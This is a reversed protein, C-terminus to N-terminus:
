SQPEQQSQPEQENRKKPDEDCEKGELDQNKIKMMGGIAILLAGLWRKESLGLLAVGGGLLATGCEQWLDRGHHLKAMKAVKIEKEEVVRMSLFDRFRRFAQSQLSKTFGDASLESGPCHEVAWEAGEEQIAERLKWARLRLHRTRWAGADTSLQTIGAKSDGRLAKRPNMDFVKLLESITEGCQYGEGYGVLESEATSM